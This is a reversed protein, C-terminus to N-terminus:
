FTIVEKANEFELEDDNEEIEVTNLETWTDEDFCLTTPTSIFTGSKSRSKNKFNSKQGKLKPM